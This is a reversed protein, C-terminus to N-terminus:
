RRLLAPDCRQFRQAVWFGPNFSAGCNFFGYRNFSEKRNFFKECNFSREASSDLAISSDATSSDPDAHFFGAPFHTSSDV